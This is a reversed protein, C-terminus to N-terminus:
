RITARWWTPSWNPEPKEAKKAIRWNDFDQKEALWKCGDCTERGCFASTCNGPYYRTEFGNEDVRKM